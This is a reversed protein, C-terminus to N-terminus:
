TKKSGSAWLNYYGIMVDYYKSCEEKLIGNATRLSVVKEHTANLEASLRAIAQTPTEYLYGQAYDWRVM